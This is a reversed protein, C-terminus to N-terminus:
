NNIGGMKFDLSEYRVLDLWFAALGHRESVKAPATPMGWVFDQLVDSSLVRLKQYLVVLNDLDIEEHQGNTEGAGAFGVVGVIAYHNLFFTGFQVAFNDVGDAVVV